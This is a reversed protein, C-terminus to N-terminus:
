DDTPRGPCTLFCLIADSFRILTAGLLKSSIECVFTHRIRWLLSLNVVWAEAAANIVFLATGLETSFHLFPKLNIIECVSEDKGIFSCKMHGSLYMLVINPDQSSFIVVSYSLM